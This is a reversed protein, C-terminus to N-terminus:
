DPRKTRLWGTVSYRAAGAFPAVYTVSHTQPVAFLNLTNFSPVFGGDIPRGNGHFLLLGGWDARWEPTLGYVYAARRNKGDVEDDHATLFHGPRYRTAQADAFQVDGAGTIEGLVQLVERSCMFTAFQDLLSGRQRRDAEADPVRISDFRYQFGNRASAMVAADLRAQQEPGLAAQEAAGAEFVKEGSNLILRWEASDRLHRLLLEADSGALFPSLQVRGEARFIERCREPDLDPDLSFRHQTRAAM